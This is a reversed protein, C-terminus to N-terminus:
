KEVPVAIGRLIINQACLFIVITPISAILVSAFVGSMGSEEQFQYLWVSMLWMDPDPAVLLPYLFATYAGNFAQLAVVALIPKSLAMTIQFFVRIESAGDIMAADYLDQPLSDFFGKLLFILYGNALMPLLLAIFTNMLNLHQLIVFQPILTVMPPFASTAMLILLIKYTGKLKFRSLAYAAMPNILLNLGVVLLCYVVTNMFTRGHTFLTDIVNIYNRAAFQRRLGASNDQVHQYEVQALPLRVEDWSAATAGTHDNFAELHGFRAALWEEWAWQPGTLRMAEPPITLLFAEFDTRESGSLWRRGDPLELEAFTEFTTGWVLNLEAIEGYEAQLFAQYDTGLPPDVAVFAPNIEEQVFEIWEARFRPKEPPPVRAPLIFDDYTALPAEPHAENYAETATRGHRPYVIAALYHGDLMVLDMEALPADALMEEYIERLPGAPRVYQRSWWEPPSYALGMWTDSVIGTERRFRQLDRDFHDAVRERYRRANTPVTRVGRLGGLRYWFSPLDTEARFDHLLAAWVPNPTELAPVAGFRFYRARHARNADEINQNYKYELFKRYLEDTDFLYRPVLNLETEDMESRVSGSAMLAFPYLITLGGLTLFFFILGIVFRGWPSRREMKSIISM